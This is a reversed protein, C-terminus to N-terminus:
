EFYVLKFEGDDRKLVYHPVDKGYKENGDALYETVDATVKYLDKSVKVANYNTVEINMTNQEIGSRINEIMQDMSENITAEYEAWEQSDKYLNYLDKFDELDGGAEIYVEVGCMDILDIAEEVTGHYLEQYFEKVIRIAEDSETPGEIETKRGTELVVEKEDKKCGTLGFALLVILIIIALKKIRSQIRKVKKM